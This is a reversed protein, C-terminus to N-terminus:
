GSVQRQVPWLGPVLGQSAPGGWASASPGRPASPVDAGRSQGRCGRRGEWTCRPGCPAPRAGEAGAVGRGARRCCARAKLVARRQRVQEGPNCNNGQLRLERVSELFTMVTCIAPKRATLPLTRSMESQRPAEPGAVPGRRRPPAQRTAPGCSAGNRGASPCGPQNWNPSFLFSIMRFVDCTSAYLETKM